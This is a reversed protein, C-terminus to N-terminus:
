VPSDFQQHVLTAINLNAIQCQGDRAEVVGACRIRQGGQMSMHIRCSEIKEHRVDWGEFMVPKIVSDVEDQRSMRVAALNAQGQQGGQVEGAKRVRKHFPEVTDAWSDGEIHRTSDSGAGHRQAEEARRFDGAYCEVAWLPSGMM